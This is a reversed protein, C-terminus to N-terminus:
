AALGLELFVARMATRIPNYHTDLPRPNQAGHAPHIAMSATLLPKIVKDHLVLPWQGSAEPPRSM